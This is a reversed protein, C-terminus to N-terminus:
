LVVEDCAMLSFRVCDVGNMHIDHESSIPSKWFSAKLPTCRPFKKNLELIGDEIMVRFTGSESADFVKRDNEKIFKKVAEELKNKHALYQSCYSMFKIM